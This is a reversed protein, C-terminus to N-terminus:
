CTSELELQGEDKHQQGQVVRSPHWVNFAVSCIWMPATDLCYLYTETSQLVSTQGAAFEAVRFISRVMILLSTSYLVYLSQKWPLSTTLSTTTPAQLIRFHFVSIAAIFCGFFLIQIGLGFLLVNQGRDVASKSGAGALIGGGICQVAFSLVDGLVFIKTLWKTRVFSLREANLIRILRGLIMYISAAFLAPGLLPLLTQIIFPTSSWNPTESANVCRAAYGVSEFIVGCFFALFYWTRAKVLQLLHWIASLAFLAAFVAATALSPDYHYKPPAEVAM